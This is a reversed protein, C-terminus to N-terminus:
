AVLVRRHKAERNRRRECERCRRRGDRTFGLNAGPYEHGYPCNTKLGNHVGVVRGQVRAGEHYLRSTRQRNCEWCRRHGRPTIHLNDGAYEHGRPCHTKHKRPVRRINEAQSCPDLHAPNVCRTNRCLHDLTKEKIPGRLLEYVIRHALPSKIAPHHTYGYRHVVGTWNWCGSAADVAIRKAIELPM